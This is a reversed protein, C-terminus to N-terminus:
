AAKEEKGLVFEGVSAELNTIRETCHDLTEDQANLAAKFRAELDGLVLMRVQQLVSDLWGRM